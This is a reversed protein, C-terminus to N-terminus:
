FNGSCGRSRKLRLFFIFCSGSVCYTFVIGCCGRSLTLLVSSFLVAFMIHLSSNRYSNGYNLLFIFTFSVSLIFLRSTIIYLVTLCIGDSLSLHYTLYLLSQYMNCQSPLRFFNNNYVTTGVLFLFVSLHPFSFIFLTCIFYILKLFFSCHRTGRVSAFCLIFVFTFTSILVSIFGRFFFFNFCSFLFSFIFNINIFYNFFWSFYRTAM